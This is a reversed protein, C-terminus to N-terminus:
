QKRKKGALAVYGKESGYEQVLSRVRTSKLDDNLKLILDLKKNRMIHKVQFPGLVLQEKHIDVGQQRDVLYFGVWFFKFCEKLAATVNAMNSYFNSESSVLAEIQPLLENYKISKDASETFILSEPM